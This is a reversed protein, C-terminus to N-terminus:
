SVSRLQSPIEDGTPHTFEEASWNRSENLIRNQTQRMQLREESIDNTPTQVFGLGKGLVAIAGVPVEEYVLVVVAGSNVRNHNPQKSTKEDECVRKFVHPSFM